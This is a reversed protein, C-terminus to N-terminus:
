SNRVAMYGFPDAGYEIVIRPWDTASVPDGNQTVHGVVPGSLNCHAYYGGGIPSGNPIKSASPIFGQSWYPKGGLEPQAAQTLFLFRELTMGEPDSRGHDSCVLWEHNPDSVTVTVTTTVVPDPVIVPPEEVPQCAGLTADPFQKLAAKVDRAEITRGGDTCIKGPYGHHHHHQPQGASAVGALALAVLAILTVLAKRM